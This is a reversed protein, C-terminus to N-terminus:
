KLRTDDTTPTALRVIDLGSKAAPTRLVSDEEPGLDVVILGDVGARAADQVFHEVGYSHIPNYYGMLVIPTTSDRRRFREVLALTGKVTMGSKLARQSSAQIVPGDAMPDSFPVGLEILDAGAGPLKELIALSTAAEPDGATIFPIFGARNAAHLEAFRSAIRSSVTARGTRRCGHVRGQRRPRFPLGCDSQGQVAEARG